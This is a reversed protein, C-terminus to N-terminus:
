LGLNRKMEARQRDLDAYEAMEESTLKSQRSLRELRQCCADYRMKRIAAQLEEGAIRERERHQEIAADQEPSQLLLDRVNEDYALIERFIEEFTAANAGTRLLDSLLRFEAPEGLARAHTAVEAFLEGHAQAYLSEEDHEDLVAVIRPYMVLNRLARQEIGTVRRRDNRAPAPRAAAVIRADVDCLAAVEDFPVDLREAFMHMIQARLANPPLAQLLPKADFLARARGEPTDLEKGAVVESLMFQSLPMARDIQEAFAEKGFERVYSDPDHEAPLFLFRITRNDAAHPLCADLARRAARRGAADGDFSFVVTDTQRLLKQVHVPTCATGLTAVANPFGLQALAVVDMYGEVVLVFRAERIALRAEFLGYLESGKSFLPTEPSNLYKPEGSELVRGGFGIVQGKVNRIPFMIRERFRDYRRAQGQADTKESVIVLGAEVLSDNRYDPFVAELNQWGDPAYGLGFRAAIEGTLGRKKLYRIAEPAGRLAKRYYDCATQMLDSLASSAKYDYGASREGGYREGGPGGGGARIPSPEQPVTLGVSQALENVAEPFALGAHEMLFGIATGHAGCGFCHYFQKTPSVTFSPSKENHFPCLGMFNAGGKKLQVYKGVVDVIDVRNLLDQLFSHPIM